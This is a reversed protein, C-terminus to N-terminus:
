EVNWPGGAPWAAIFAPGDSLAVLLGGFFSILREGVVSFDEPAGQLEHRNLYGRWELARDANSYFDPTLAVPPTRSIETNRQDFTASVSRSLAEGGFAFNGAITYLDYFDKYRTNREGLAVIAHLKEAVFADRPYVRIRPPPYDLLTSFQTDIPAPQIIDGFGIDIRILIGAGGLTAALRANFTNYEGQERITELRIAKADFCVGDDVVPVACIESLMSQVHEMWSNGYSTFDLDRTPRYAGGQWLALLAGGKLIFNERHSSEGLRYLFREEAYRRLLFQYDEGTKRARNKLRERVSAGVNRLEQRRLASDGAYLSAHGHACPM